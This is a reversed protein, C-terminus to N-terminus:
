LEIVSWHHMGFLTTTSIITVGPRGEKLGDVLQDPDFILQKESLHDPLVLAGFIECPSCSEFCLVGHDITM